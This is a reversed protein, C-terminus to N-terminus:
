TGARFTVVIDSYYNLIGADIQVTEATISSGDKIWTYLDVDTIQKSVSLTHPGYQRDLEECMPILNDPDSRFFYSAQVLQNDRFFLHIEDVYVDAFRLGGGPIEYYDLGDSGFNAYYGLEERNMFYAPETKKFSVAGGTDEELLKQVEEPATGWPINRFMIGSANEEAGAAGCCVACLVAALAVAILKKLM